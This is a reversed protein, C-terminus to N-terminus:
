SIPPGTFRRHANDELTGKGPSEGRLKLKIVLIAALALGIILPSWPGAFISLLVLVAAAPALLLSSTFRKTFPFHLLWLVLLYATVPVAVISAAAYESIHSVGTQQDVM